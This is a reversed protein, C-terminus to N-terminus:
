EDFWNRLANLGEVINKCNEKLFSSEEFTNNAKRKRFSELAMKGDFDVYALRIAMPPSRDKASIFDSAPLSTLGIDSLLRKALENCNEINRRKLKAILDPSSTFDLYVYFGGVPDAITIGMERICRVVYNAVIKIIEKVDSLYEQIDAGFEYAKVAAYQVPAAATTHTESAM